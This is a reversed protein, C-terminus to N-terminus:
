YRDRKRLLMAVIEKFGQFFTALLASGQQIDQDNVDAGNNLVIAVIEQYGKFCAM